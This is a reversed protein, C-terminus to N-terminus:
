RFTFNETMSRSEHNGRLLIVNQPYNIKLSMLLLLVETGYIGRDVFDGLFLYNIDGPKGAKELMHCVDYYQGHVDGVIVVPEEIQMLNPEKKLLDIATRSIKVAQAKSLEGEARLFSQLVKWNPVNKDGKEFLVDDTLPKIPPLPLDKVRRDGLPDQLLEYSEM